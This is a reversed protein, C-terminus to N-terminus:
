KKKVGHTMLRMTDDLFIYPNNRFKIYYIFVYTNESHYM